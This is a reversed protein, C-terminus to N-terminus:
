ILLQAALEVNDWKESINDHKELNDLAWLPQLNQLSWCRKFAEDKYSTYNFNAIGVKHDIHWLGYNDWSMGELFKSELHLILSDLSYGLVNELMENNKGNILSARMRNGINQKLRFKIDNKYRNRWYENRKDINEPEANYEKLYEKMYERYEEDERREAHYKLQHEQYRQYQEKYYNPNEAVKDNNYQKNCENLEERNLNLYEAQYSRVYEYNNEYYKMQQKKHCDKCESTRGFKLRKDKYFDDLIKPIGCKTCKKTEVLEPNKM